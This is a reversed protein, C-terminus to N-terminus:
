SIRNNWPLLHDGGGSILKLLPVSLDFTWSGKCLKREMEDKKSSLNLNIFGLKVSLM